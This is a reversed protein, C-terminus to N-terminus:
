PMEATTISPVAPLIDTPVGPIIDAFIIVGSFMRQSVVPSIESTSKSLVLFFEWLFKQQM